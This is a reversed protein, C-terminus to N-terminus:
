LPISYVVSHCQRVNYIWLCLCWDSYEFVWVGSIICYSHKERDLKSSRSFSIYFSHSSLPSHLLLLLFSFGTGFWRWFGNFVFVSEIHSPLLIPPREFPSQTDNVKNRFFTGLSSLFFFDSNLRIEPCKDSKLSNEVDAVM